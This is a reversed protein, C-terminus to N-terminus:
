LTKNEKYVIIIAAFLLSSFTIFLLIVLRHPSNKKDPLTPPSVVTIYSLNGNFDTINKDYNQKLVRYNDLEINFRSQLITFEGSYEKINSLLEKDTTNLEKKGSNKTVNKTQTKIDLLGYNMRMYKLRAEISDIEKKKTKLQKSYLEVYETYKEKKRKRILSNVEEIMGNALQQAFAPSLDTVSIEVSQYRTFKIQFNANYAKNFEFQAKEDTPDIEYHKFLDFRKVLSAKTDASNFFEFLQETGSEKGFPILNTPYVTFASKYDPPMIFPSTLLISIGIAVLAVLTLKKWSKSLLKLIYFNNFKEM